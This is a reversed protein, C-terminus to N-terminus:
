KIKGRMRLDIEFYHEFEEQNHIKYIGSLMVGCSGSDNKNEYIRIWAWSNNGFYDKGFEDSTIIALRGFNSDHQDFIWVIDGKKLTDYDREKHPYKKGFDKINSNKWTYPQSCATLSFLFIIIFFSKSSKM